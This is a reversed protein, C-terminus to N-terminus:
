QNNPKLSDNTDPNSTFQFYKSKNIENTLEDISKTIDKDQNKYASCNKIYSSIRNTYDKLELPKGPCNKKDISTTPNNNSKLFHIFSNLSDITKM